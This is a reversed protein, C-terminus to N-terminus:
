QVQEWSQSTLSAGGFSTDFRRRPPFRLVEACGMPLAAGGRRLKTDRVGFKIGAVTCWKLGAPLVARFSTLSTPSEQTAPPPDICCLPEGSSDLVSIALRKLQTLNPLLSLVPPLLAVLASTEDAILNLSQLRNFAALKDLIDLCDRTVVMYAYKLTPADLLRFLPAQLTPRFSPEDNEVRRFRLDLNQVPRTSVLSPPLSLASDTRSSSADIDLTKLALFATLANALSLIDFPPSGSASFVLSLHLSRLTNSFRSLAALQVLDVTKTTGLHLWTLNPCRILLQGYISACAAAQGATRKRGKVQGYAGAVLPKVSELLHPRELLQSALAQDRGVLLALSKLAYEEGLPRWAKCVHMFRAGTRRRSSSRSSEPEVYLLIHRILEVPLPPVPM